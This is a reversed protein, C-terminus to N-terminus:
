GLSQKNNCSHQVLADNAVDDTKLFQEVYKPTVHSLYAKAAEPNQLAVMNHTKVRDVLYRLPEKNILAGRSQTKDDRTQIDYREFGGNTNDFVTAQTLAYQAGARNIGMHFSYTPNKQEDLLSYVLTVYSNDDAKTIHLSGKEDGFQTITYEDIGLKKLLPTLQSDQIFFNTNNYQTVLQM